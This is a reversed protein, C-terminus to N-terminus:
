VQVIVLFGCEAQFFPNQFTNELAPISFTSDEARTGQLQYVAADSKCKFFATLLIKVM